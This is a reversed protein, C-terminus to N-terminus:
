SQWLIAPAYKEIFNTNFPTENLYTELADVLKDFNTYEHNHSIQDRAQEWVHEQPNLDPCAVPFYIVELRQTEAILRTVDKKHWPARDLLLLIPQHAYIMLLIMLFNATYESTEADARMAIEQGTRVNLAGYFHLHIRSADVAIIPTDGVQSWVRTLTARYYFSMEDLTLIVGNPHRQLFDTM